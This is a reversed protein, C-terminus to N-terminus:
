VIDLCHDTLNNQEHVHFQKVHKFSNQQWLVNDIVSAGLNNVFTYNGINLYNGPRGNLVM